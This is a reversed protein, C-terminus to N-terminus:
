RHAAVLSLVLPPRELKIAIPRQVSLEAPCPRLCEQGHNVWDQRHIPFEILGLVIREM